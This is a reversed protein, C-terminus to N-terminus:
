LLFDVSWHSWGQIKTLSEYSEYSKLITATYLFLVIVSKYRYERKDTPCQVLTKQKKSTTKPDDVFKEKGPHTQKFHKGLTDYRMLRKCEGCKVKESPAHAGSPRGRKLM